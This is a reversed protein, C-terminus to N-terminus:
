FDTRFPCAPLGEENYLNADDPNDAWAYRVAVPDKVHHSYVIVKDDKIEAKAWVFKKDSGAIAFGRLYGYRDGKAHLGSGIGTFSLIMKSGDKETSNYMPGTSVIDKGYTIKLANLALRLGVDQKNRPHIDNAVGIDIALAQGTLPVKLTSTQSERLEAWSSEGPENDPAMFNALQVWLFPFVIGWRSRWDKILAPFLTKYKKPNGANSEGQYWIVGKISFSTIPAIMANYLQSPFSNPGTQQIGFDTNLVSPKYTWEGDLPYREGDVEIFMQEKEGNMGGGGGTDTVKVAIVNTGGKLVGPELPYQREQSYDM